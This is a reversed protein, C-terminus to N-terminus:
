PRSPAGTYDQMVLPLWLYYEIGPLEDYPECGIGACPTATPYPTEEWPIPTYWPTWTPVPTPTWAEHELEIYVVQSGGSTTLTETITTETWTLAQTSWIKSLTMSTTLASSVSWTVVGSSEAGSSEALTGGGTTVVSTLTIASTDWEEVLTFTIGATATITDVIRITDTGTIPVPTSWDILDSGRYLDKQWWTVGAPPAPISSFTTLLGGEGGGGGLISFLLMLLAIMSTVLVKWRPTNTSTSAAGDADLVYELADQSGPIGTLLAVGAMARAVGWALRMPLGIRMGNVLGSAMVDAGSLADGRGGFNLGPGHIVARAGAEWLAELLANNESGYCAGVFIVSGALPLRRVDEVTLVDKGADDVWAQGDARPHLYFLVLDYRAAQPWVLVGGAPLVDADPGVIRRATEAFEKVTIALIRM